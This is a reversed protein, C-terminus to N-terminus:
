ERDRLHIYLDSVSLGSNPNRLGFTTAPSTDEAYRYYYIRDVNPVRERLFPWVQEVYALQQDVGQKGSETVWISPRITNLFDDVDEVLREFNTGYYHIAFRDVVTEIGALILDKNYNLTAPFNQAISTTAGNLVIKNSDISRIADYGFSVLEVFNVPQDIVDITYNEAFDLNNPENWIQYGIIKRVSKYRDVVPKVWREVFTFRPNSAIWNSSNNMWSPVNTLIILADMGSPICDIISDYFSFDLGDSPNAQVNDDWNFLIRVYSLGLTNKIDSFQACASGAFTQNSFANLGMRTTDIPKRDVGDILELADDVSDSNCALGFCLIFIFLFNRLQM